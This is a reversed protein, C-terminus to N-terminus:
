AAVLQAYKAILKGAIQDLQYREDQYDTKQSLETLGQAVGWVSTPAATYIDSREITDYAAGAQQETAGMARLEDVIAAKSSALEHDILLRIIREDAAASRQTFKFAIAGIERLVDRLVHKGVHRRRFRRDIVAGWLNLNGCIYEFLVQEITVSCAGVESNRVMVGRYMQGNGGRISPDNVISGGDVVVVFSDRDGMYAGGRPGDKGGEWTPPLEFKEGLSDFLGRYLAADWLRGYTTSTISRVTPAPRGNPAQVLLTAREGAPAQRIGENICDAALQPPLTRLYGAPAGLMRSLQGFGWHTVLAAGKPSQLAVTPQGDISSAAAQLDRLNYGREASSAHRHEAAEILASASTYKEDAPRSYYEAAATGIVAYQKGIQHASM